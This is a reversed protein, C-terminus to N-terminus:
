LDRVYCFMVGHAGPESNVFGHAQYFRRADVDVEDVNIQMEGCGSERAISMSRELLAHGIGRGRLDPRVYLEDLTITPGEYWISPRLTLFAIAVAPAAADAVAGPPASPLEALVVLTSEAGLLRQLRATLVSAGPTPTDFETNFADLLVAVTAADAPGAVTLALDAPPPATM